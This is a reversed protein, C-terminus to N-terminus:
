NNLSFYFTAGHGVESTAWIKGAHRSVIRQVTALGIGHGPFDSSSHLRRFPMFLKNVYAMNFGAGNDRVFYCDRGEADCDRGFEIRPSACKRTFKWANELLNELAIRLLRDDGCDLLEPQVRFEVSRGPESQQLGQVIEAALRSLDVGTRHLNARSLRSLNLLADISQDMEQSARAVRDLNERGAESMREAEDERVMQAFGAIRRLPGRLDHAVSYCFTELERNSETLEATREQVQRELGSNLRQIEAEARVREAVKSQLEEKQRKVEAYLRDNSVAVAIQNAIIQLHELDAKTFDSVVERAYIGLIGIVQDQVLLPAAAYFLLPYSDVFPRALMAAFADQRVDPIFTPCSQSIVKEALTGAIPLRAHRLNEPLGSHALLVMDLSEIGRIVCADVGYANRVTDAVVRLQDGLPSVGIVTNTVRGIMRLRSDSLALAQEAQRTETIDLAIGGVIRPEGDRGEIPFKHVLYHRSGQPSPGTEVVQLSEGHQIVWDDNKRFVDAVDPPFLEESSRSLVQNLDKQLTKLVTPNAYLYKGASDKMWTHGPFYQMFSVFRTESERLAKEALKRDHIDTVSALIRSPRGESNRVLMCTVEVWRLSGDKCIYRKELRSFPIEGALLRQTAQENAPRDELYTIDTYTMESLETLSYGVLEAFSRNVRLLKGSRPDIQKNGHGVLEFTARYEAESARLATEVRIRELAGACYDALDQLVMLDRQEYANPEYSQLSMVGIKRDGDRIPVFMLSASPRELNGFAVSGPTWEHPSQKLILKAGQDIVNRTLSPKGPEFEVCYKETRAGQITDVDLIRWIQDTELSYSSLSFADWGFLENTIDGIIRGAELPSRVSSLLRGLKSFAALQSSIRNREAIDRTTKLLLEHYSGEGEPSRVGTDGVPLEPSVGGPIIIGATVETMIEWRVAAELDKLYCPFPTFVWGIHGM